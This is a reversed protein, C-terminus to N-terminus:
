IILILRYKLLSCLSPQSAATMWATLSQHASSTDLYRTNKFFGFKNLLSCQGVSNSPDAPKRVASRSCQFVPYWLHFSARRVATKEQFQNSSFCNFVVSLSKKTKKQNQKCKSQCLDRLYKISFYEHSAEVFIIINIIM